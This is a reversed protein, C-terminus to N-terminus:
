NSSTCGGSPCNEAYNESFVAPFYGSQMLHLGISPLEPVINRLKQAILGYDGNIVAGAEYIWVRAQEWACKDWMSRPYDPHRSQVNGSDTNVWVTKGDVEETGFELNQYSCQSAFGPEMIATDFSQRRRDATFIHMSPSPLGQLVKNRVITMDLWWADTSVEPVTAVWRRSGEEAESYRGCKNSGGVMVIRPSGFAISKTADGMINAVQALAGGLSHGVEVMPRGQCALRVEKQVLIYYEM